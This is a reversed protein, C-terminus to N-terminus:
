IHSTPKSGESRTKPFLLAGAETKAKLILHVIDPYAERPTLVRCIDCTAADFIARDSPVDVDTARGFSHLRGHMQQRAAPPPPATAAPLARQDRDLEEHLGSM